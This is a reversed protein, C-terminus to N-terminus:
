KACLWCTTLTAFPSNPLLKQIQATQSMTIEIAAIPAPMESSEPRSNPSDEAVQPADQDDDHPEGNEPVRGGVPRCAAVADDPMIADQREPPKGEDTDVMPPHATVGVGHEAQHRGQLLRGHARWRVGLEVSGAALKLLEVALEGNRSREAPTAHAGLLPDSAELTTDRLELALVFSASGLPAGFAVASYTSSVRRELGARANNV